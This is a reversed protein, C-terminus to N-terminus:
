ASKIFRANHRLYDMNTSIPTTNVTVQAELVAM